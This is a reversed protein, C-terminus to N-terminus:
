PDVWSAVPRLDAVRFVMVAVGPAVLRAIPEQCTEVYMRPASPGPQRPEELYWCGEDTVLPSPAGM